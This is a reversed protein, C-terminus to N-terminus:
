GRDYLHPFFFPALACALASRWMEQRSVLGRTLYGIAGSKTKAEQMGSVEDILPGLERGERIKEGISEPLLLKAGYAHSQRGTRGAVAAVNILWAQGQEDFEVGGELGVALDAGSQMLAHEARQYAGKRTEEEGIPQARVGSPVNLPLVTADLALDTLLQEVAGVKAPNTSGVAVIKRTELRIVEGGYRVV